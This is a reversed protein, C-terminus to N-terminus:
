KNKSKELITEFFIQKETPSFVFVEAEGQLPLWAAAQKQPPCPGLCGSNMIRTEKGLGLDKFKAKFEIKCQEAFQSDGFGTNERKGCKECIFVAAKAWNTNIKEM